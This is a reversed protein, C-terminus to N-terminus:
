QYGAQGEATARGWDEIASFRQVLLTDARRRLTVHVIRESSDIEIAVLRAGAEKALDRAQTELQSENPNLSGSQTVSTTLEIAIDTATSSLTFTNVAIAGVEFLVLGAIALGLVIKVLWSVLIGREDSWDM